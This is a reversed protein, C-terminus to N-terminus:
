DVTPAPLPALRAPGVMRSLTRRVAGTHREVLGYLVLAVVYAVAVCLTSGVLSAPGPGLRPGWGLAVQTGALCLIAVPMHTLYLSYSFDAMFAHIRAFRLRGPAARAVSAVLEAFCAGSVMDALLLRWALATDEEVGTRLVRSLALAALLLVTAAPIPLAYAGRRARLFAAVGLAWIVAYAVLGKPMLYATLALLLCAAVKSGTRRAFAVALVCGFGCYYWWENVLSWVPGNTGPRPVTIGDQMLLNGIVTVTTLNEPHLRDVYVPAAPLLTSGAWDITVTLLLAPVFVTYIRCLRHLAYDPLSLRGAEGKAWSLGGVLFGSLVFFAIVAEHGFSTALYLSRVALSPHVLSALPGFAIQRVHYVLVAFASVWRTANLFDSTGDSMM